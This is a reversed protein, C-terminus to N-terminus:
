VIHFPHEISAAKVELEPLVRQFYKTMDDMYIHEIGYHGADIIVMGQAVSDIGEHHDIDGTILVDAGKDLSIGIMSKGSGPSIAARKIKQTEDGFVKVAEIHFREKILDCCARVTMESSLSGIRGIGEQRSIGQNNKEEYTVELVEPNQLGMIDAALDAMGLVDYNTHMAYYSIGASILRIIRAGIFQDDTIRKLPSFILPHHTVIMEAGFAIAEDIISDTLDLAVYVKHVETNQSGALLGVNDWECAFSTPYREEIKNIIDRCLM